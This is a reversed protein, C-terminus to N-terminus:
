ASGLFSTYTVTRSLDYVKIHDSLRVSKRSCICDMANYGLEKPPQEKGRARNRLKSEKLWVYTLEM